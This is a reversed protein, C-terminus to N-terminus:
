YTLGLLLLQLPTLFVVFIVLGDRALRSKLTSSMGLSLEGGSAAASSMMMLVTVALFRFLFGLLFLQGSHCAWGDQQKWRELIGVDYRPCQLKQLSFGLDGFHGMAVSQVAPERFYNAGAGTAHRFAWQSFAWRVPSVLLLLSGYTGLSNFLFSADPKIGCFMFALFSTVVCFIMATQPPFAIAWIHNVGWVAYLFAFGIAFIDGGSAYQQVLPWYVLTFCLAALGMEVLSAVDKGIFSSVIQSLSCVSAERWAMQREEGGFVRQSAVSQALCLLLWVLLGKLFIHVTGVVPFAWAVSCVALVLLSINIAITPVIARSMVLLARSLQMSVQQAWHILQVRAAAAANLRDDVECGSASATSESAAEDDGDVQTRVAVFSNWLASLMRGFEERQWLETSEEDEESPTPILVARLCQPPNRWVGEVAMQRASEFTCADVIIDAPNENSPFDLNLVAMFYAKLASVPGAYCLHGGPSLLVLMDFLSLTAWRPQHITAFTTCHEAAAGSLVMELIRHATSSDLGSSPEDLFLVRPQSVVEMGISVRKRQGGSLGDRVLRDQVHALGLGCIVDDIRENHEQKVSRPGKSSSSASSPLSEEGMREASSDQQLRFSAQFHINERVSLATHMVDDQPVYGILPRLKAMEYPKVSAGNLRMEGVFRGNGCRGSLVSLLTTKGSGSAGMVAVVRGAPVSFSLDQLLKRGTELQYCVKDLEFSVGVLQQDDTGPEDFDTIDTNCDQPPDPGRPELATWSAWAKHDTAKKLASGDGASGRIKHAALCERAAATVADRAAKAAANSGPSGGRINRGLSPMETESTAREKVTGKGGVLQMVWAILTGLPLESLLDKAATALLAYSLLQALEPADLAMFGGCVAALAGALLSVRFIVPGHQTLLLWVMQFSAWLIVIFLGSHWDQLYIVFAMICGVLATSDAAMQVMPDSIRPSVMLGYCLLAGILTLMLLATFHPGVGLIREMRLADAGEFRLQNLMTYVLDLNIVWGAAIVASLVMMPIVASLGMGRRGSSMSRMTMVWLPVLTILTLLSALRWDQVPSGEPCFAFAACRSPETSGPTCFYGVPCMIARGDPCYNGAACLVPATANEGCMRAPPCKEMWISIPCYHGVPCPLPTSVGGQCSRGPGCALPPQKGGRCYFGPPCPNTTKQLACYETPSVTRDLGPLMSSLCFSGIPADCEVVMALQLPTQRKVCCHEDKCGGTLGLPCDPHLHWKRCCVGGGCFGTSCSGSRNGCVVWCAEGEHLVPEGTDQSGQKLLYLLDDEVKRTVHGADHLIDGVPRNRMKTGHKVAASKGRNWLPSQQMVSDDKPLAVQLRRGAGSAAEVADSIASRVDGRSIGDACEAAAKQDILKLLVAERRHSPVGPATDFTDFKPIHDVNGHQALLEWVDSDALSQDEQIPVACTYSNPDGLDIAPALGLQLLAILGGARRAGHSAGGLM